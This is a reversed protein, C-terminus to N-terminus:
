FKLKKQALDSRDFEAQPKVPSMLGDKRDLEDLGMKHLAEFAARKRKRSQVSITAPHLDRRVMVLKKKMENRIQGISFELKKELVSDKM